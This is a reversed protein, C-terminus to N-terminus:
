LIANLPTRLEHSMSSLFESKTRNASEAVIRAADLEATRTEVLEELHHRHRMLEEKGAELDRTKESVQRRLYASILLSILLLTALTVMSKFLWSPIVTPPPQVTWKELVKYYPSDQQEIWAALHRDIANLLDANKGRKTGYYLQDPHFMIPSAVLKYGGAKAYGFFRNAAVADAENKAVMEFGENLSKAPILQAQIGFGALLDQLYVQQISDKLIAIRKGQLDLMSNITTGERHYMETWSHLVTVKNFDITRARQASYAIDPMLDIRGDQLAQLCDAWDCQVPQLTWNERKAIENLIDILIGTAHGDHDVFIKPENSYVGVRVERGGAHASFSVAMVSLFILGTCCRFWRRRAPSIESSSNNGSSRM